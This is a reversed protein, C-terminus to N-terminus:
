AVLPSQAPTEFRPVSMPLRLGTRENDTLFAQCQDHDLAEAFDLVPTVCADSGHFSHIWEDRTRRRFILAFRESTAPWADRDMQAAPNLVGLLELGVLLSRYFKAEIAAVAVYRGDGTEYCRYFPAGGDLVNSQRADHWAGAARLGHLFPTLAHAGALISTKVVQGQGTARAQILAALVGIALQMAGGGFDAVLNLPVPPAHGPEGMAALAGTMGLFNLDHGAEKAMPGTEGWGSIRGFVLSPNRSACEAPGLGLREMVGPRFGEILIDADAILDLAARLEDVRKLDLVVTRKGRALADFEPPTVIGLESAEPRDVRLVDAGLERLVLGCYPVPGIAAFEVVRAGTLPGTGGSPAPSAIM